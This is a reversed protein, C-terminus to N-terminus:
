GSLKAADAPASQQAVTTPGQDWVSRVLSVVADTASLCLRAAKADATRRHQLQVALDWASRVQTRAHKHEPGALEVVLFADLMRKADTNSPDQGDTPPHKDSDYVAQSLTILAERCLLGIEQFEEETVASAVKEAARALTRELREVFTARNANREREQNTRYLAHHVCSKLQKYFGWSFDQDSAPPVTLGQARLDNLTIGYQFPYGAVRLLEQNRTSRSWERAAAAGAKKAHGRTHDHERKM